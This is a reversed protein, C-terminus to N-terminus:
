PKLHKIQEAPTVVFLFPTFNEEPHSPSGRDITIILPTRVQTTTHDVTTAPPPQQQTPAIAAVLAVAANAYATRPGPTLLGSTRLPLSHSLAYSVPASPIPSCAVPVRVASRESDCPFISVYGDLSTEGKDNELM